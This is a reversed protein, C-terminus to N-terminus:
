AAGEAAVQPRARVIVRDTRAKEWEQLALGNSEFLSRIDAANWGLVQELLPVTVSFADDSLVTSRAIRALQQNESVAMTFGGRNNVHLM